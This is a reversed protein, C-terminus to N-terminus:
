SPPFAKSLVNPEVAFKNASWWCKFQVMWSPRARTPPPIALSSQPLSIPRTLCSIWDWPRKSEPPTDIEQVVSYKGAEDAHIISLKGAGASAFVNGTGPNFFAGDCDDGIAVSQRVKGARSDVVM